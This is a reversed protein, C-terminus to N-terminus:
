SAITGIIIFSQYNWYSYTANREIDNKYFV